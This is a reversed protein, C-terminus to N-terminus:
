KLKATAAVTPKLKQQEEDFPKILITMTHNDDSLAALSNESKKIERDPFHYVQTYSMDAFMMKMMDMSEEGGEEEGGGEALAKKIEEGLDGAGLREFNKGTFKFIEDTKSDYKEKNIIKLARNLAAVDVFDFTYGFKLNSTDNVEVVNSVGQIGKLSAAVSSLQEGMQSMSNDVAPQAAADGGLIATSDGSLSDGTMGKMMDMMGKLESMDLTMAYSGNGKDKFTVEELIHLCSTLTMSVMALVALFLNRLNKM